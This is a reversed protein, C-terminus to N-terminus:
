TATIRPLSNMDEDDEYVDLYTTTLCSMDEDGTTVAVADGDDDHPSTGNTGHGSNRKHVCARM